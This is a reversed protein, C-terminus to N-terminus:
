GTKTPGDDFVHGLHGGCRPCKVETRVMFHSMDTGTAVNEGKVPADFSPWGTGSDFKADASFLELGCAACKYMGKRKEDHYKGTFAQKTGKERLIHYQDPTLKKKWDEEPKKIKEM